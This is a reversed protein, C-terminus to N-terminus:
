DATVGRESSIWQSHKELGSTELTKVFPSNPDNVAKNYAAEDEYGHVVIHDGGSEFVEVLKVGPMSRLTQRVQKGKSEFDPDSETNM